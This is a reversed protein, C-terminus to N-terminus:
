ISKMSFNFIIIKIITIIGLTFGVCNRCQKGHPRKNRCAQHYDSCTNYLTKQKKQSSEVCKPRLKIQIQVLTVVRCDDIEEAGFFVAHIVFGYNSETILASLTMMIWVIRMCACVCVCVCLTYLTAAFPKLNFSTCSVKSWHPEHVDCVYATYKCVIREGHNYNFWNCNLRPCVMKCMIPLLCVAVAPQLINCHCAAHAFTHSPCLAHFPCNEHLFWVLHHAFKEKWKM